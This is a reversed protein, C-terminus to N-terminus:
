DFGTGFHPPGSSHIGLSHLGLAVTTFCSAPWASIASEPGYPAFTRPGCSAELAIARKLGATSGLSVAVRTVPPAEYRSAPGPELPVDRPVSDMSDSRFILWADLSPRLPLEHIYLAVVVNPCVIALWRSSTTVYNDTFLLTPEGDSVGCMLERYIEMEGAQEAVRSYTPAALDESYPLPLSSPGFFLILPCLIGAAILRPNSPRSTSTWTAPVLVSLAAVQILYGVEATFMATFFILNVAVVAISVRLWGLQLRVSAVLVVPLASFLFAWTTAGLNALVGHLNARKGFISYSAVFMDSVLARHARNYLDFGGSMQILPVMWAAVAVGGAVAAAAWERIPRGWLLWVLAPSMLLPITPRVSGALGFAAAIAVSRVLTPTRKARVVAALLLLTLLAEAGHSQGDGGYFWLVPHVTAIVACVLSRGRADTGGGLIQSCALYAAPTIAVGCLRTTWKALEIPDLWPACLHVLKLLVVYGPYGPPHPQHDLVDFRFGALGFNMVDTDLVGDFDLGLGLVLSLWCLLTVVIIAAWRGQRPDGLIAAFTRRDSM